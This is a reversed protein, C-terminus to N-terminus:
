AQTYESVDLLYMQRKGSHLSDICVSKGDRSWRPHLDCRIEGRYEKPLHFRGLHVLKGDSPRYLMPKQMRNTDPYTDTLIWEEDPSYTCHGDRTLVEKGIVQVTDSQEDYLHFHDEGNEERSWALIQNPNKWIFHSVMDHDAVVHIDSGDPNATLMRTYWSKRDGIMRRWRHLFIFRSGDPSFLLHNFWHKNNDMSENHRIQIIEEFSIILKANGSELDIAYIGDDQPHNQDGYPDPFGNYGYGPRTIGLRNMNVGVAHKGAPSVAYIARQLKKQEGTHIHQIVAHYGDEHRANYIVHEGSGPLWQLMCGQQWCWATTGGFNRWKDGDQLDIMGLRIEDDPMPSRDNFGVQMGLLYRNTPDFQHKDYYGFWHSKPGQTVARYPVNVEVDEAHTTLTSLSAGLGVCASTQLFVRRSISPM